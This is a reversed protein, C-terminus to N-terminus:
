VGKEQHLNTYLRINPQLNAVSRFKFEKGAVKLIAVGDQLLLESTNETKPDTLLILGSNGEASEEKVATQLGSDAAVQHLESINM